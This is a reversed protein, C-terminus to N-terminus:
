GTGRQLTVTTTMRPPLIGNWPALQNFEWIGNKNIHASFINSKCSSLRHFVFKITSFFPFFVNEIPRITYKVAAVYLRFYKISLLSYPQKPWFANWVCVCKWQQLPYSLRWHLFFISIYSMDDSWGKVLWCVRETHSGARAHIRFRSLLLTAKGASASNCRCQLNSTSLILAHYLETQDKICM